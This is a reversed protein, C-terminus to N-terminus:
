SIRSGYYHFNIIQLTVNEVFYIDRSKAPSSFITELLNDPPHTGYASSNSTQFRNFITKLSNSSLNLLLFTKNSTVFLLFIFFTTENFHM